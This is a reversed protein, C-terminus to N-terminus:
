PDAFNGAVGLAGGVANLQWMVQAGAMAGALSISAGLLCFGIGVMKGTSPNPGAQSIKYICSATNGLAITMNIAYEVTVAGGMANMGLTEGTAPDIRWWVADDLSAVHQPVVVAYGRGLDDAVLAESDPDLDLAQLGALDGAAILAWNQGESIASAYRVAASHQSNPAGIALTEAVTDAVGAAIAASGGATRVRNVVIDFTIADALGGDAAPKLGQRTMAINPEVQIRKDGDPGYGLRGAAFATLPLNVHAFDDPFSPTPSGDNARLWAATARFAVRFSENVRAAARDASLRGTTVVIEVNQLLAFGRAIRDADDIAASGDRRARAAPGILDFLTRREIRPAEGPARTEIEIFEATFKAPGTNEDYPGTGGGELDEGLGGIADALGAMGSGGGHQGMNAETAESVDGDTAVLRDTSVDGGAALMPVWASSAAVAGIVKANFDGGEAFLADFSKLDLAKHRLVLVRGSIAAPDFDKALLTERGLVGERNFEAVIRVTVTRRLDDPLADVAFNEVAGPAGILAASPDLDRWTGSENAQVWWHDAIAALRADDAPAALVSGADTQLRTSIAAIDEEAKAAQAAADAKERETRARMKAGDIRPDAYLKELIAEDGTPAPPPPPVGDAAALLAAAPAADLATRALRVDVGSAKLLAAILLARDLSNGRRDELTGQPGKLVGRYPTLAIHEGVWAVIEDPTKGKLTGALAEVDFTERHLQAQMADMAEASAEYVGAVRASEVAKDPEGQGFAGGLGFVIPLCFGAAAGLWKPATM